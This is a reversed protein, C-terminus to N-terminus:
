SGDRRSRLQLRELNRRAPSGKRRPAMPIGWGGRRELFATSTIPKWDARWLTPLLIGQIAKHPHVKFKCRFHACGLELDLIWKFHKSWPRSSTTRLAGTTPCQHRGFRLIAAAWILQWWYWKLPHQITILRLDFVHSWLYNYILDSNYSWIAPSSTSRSRWHHQICRSIM